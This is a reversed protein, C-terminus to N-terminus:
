QSAKRESATTEVIDKVLDHTWDMMDKKQHANSAMAIPKHRNASRSVEFQHYQKKDDSDTM